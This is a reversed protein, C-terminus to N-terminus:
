QTNSEYLKQFEKQIRNMEDIGIQDEIFEVFDTLHQAQYFWQRYDDVKQDSFMSQSDM